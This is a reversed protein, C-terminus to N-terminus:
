PLRPNRTLALAASALLLGALLDVAYHYRFYLTAVALGAAPLKAAIFADVPHPPLPRAASLPPSLPLPAQVPATSAWHSTYPAGEAIWRRLTDIQAATLTKKEKPPPMMDEEDSSLVRAILESDAPKHEVITAVGSKGGQLAGDRTDLRLGAKRDQADPGHCHLCNEALIPQVERAFDIATGTPAASAAAVTFLSVSLALLHALRHM